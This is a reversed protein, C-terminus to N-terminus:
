YSSETVWFFFSTQLWLFARLDWFSAHKSLSSNRRSPALTIFLGLYCVMPTYLPAFANALRLNAGVSTVQQEGGEMGGGGLADNLYSKNNAVGVGGGGHM